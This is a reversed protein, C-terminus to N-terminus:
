MHIHPNIHLETALTSIGSALSRGAATTGIWLGLLLILIGYLANVKGAKLLLFVFGAIVVLPILVGAATIPSVPSDRWAPAPRATGSTVKLVGELRVNLVAGGGGDRVTVNLV